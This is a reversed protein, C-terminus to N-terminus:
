KMNPKILKVVYTLIIFLIITDVPWMILNKLIRAPLLIMFGKGYLMSLWLTNLGCDIVVKEVLGAFAIRSLKVPKKYLIIGYLAGRLIASLTFGVFFPGTPKIIYNLIDLMGGFIGGVVPGFMLEVARNPIGSFGIKIYPGITITTVYGLIIALAAMLGCFVVNRTEKFEYLSSKSLQLLKNM